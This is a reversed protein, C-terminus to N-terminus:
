EMQMGPVWLPPISDSNYYGIGGGVKYDEALHSNSCNGAALSHPNGFSVRFLGFAM